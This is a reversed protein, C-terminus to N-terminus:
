ALTVTGNAINTYGSGWVWRGGTTSLNTYTAASRNLTQSGGSTQFTISTWTDNTVTASGTIEFTTASSSSSLQDVQHTNTGYIDLFSGTNSISGYAGRVYGFNLPTKVDNQGVTLTFTNGAYSSGASTGYFDDMSITGSAPVGTAVGYYESLSIPNSGGFETQIDSLSIPGSSQLAM